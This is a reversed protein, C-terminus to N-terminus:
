AAKRRAIGVLGLLGSGFLWTAAPIPVSTLIRIQDVWPNVEMNFSLNRFDESLTIDDIGHGTARGQLGTPYITALNGVVPDSSDLSADTFIVGIIARDFTISGFASQSTNGVGDFHVFYSDVQTGAFVIGPTITSGPLTMDVSLDEGLLTNQKETFVRIEDNSELADDRVDPPPAILAVDGSTGVIAAFAATGPLSAVVAFLSTAIVGTCLKNMVM